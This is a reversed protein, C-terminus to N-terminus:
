PTKRAKDLYENWLSSYLYFTRSMRQQYEGTLFFNFEATVALPLTVFSLGKTQDWNGKGGPATIWNNQMLAGNDGYYYGTKDAIWTAPQDMNDDYKGDDNKDVWPWVNANKYSTGGQEIYAYRFKISQLNECMIDGEDYPKTGAGYTVWDGKVIDWQKMPDWTKNYGDDGCGNQLYYPMYKGGAQAHAKDWCIYEDSARQVMLSGKDDVMLYMHNNSDDDGDDDIGNNDMGPPEGPNFYYIVRDVKGPKLSTYFGLTQNEFRISFLGMHVAKFEPKVNYRTDNIYNCKWVISTLDIEMRDTASRYSELVKLQNNSISYTQLCVRYMQYVITSLFLTIAIAVLLEILTFGSARKTSDQRKM